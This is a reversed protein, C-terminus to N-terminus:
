RTGKEKRFPATVRDEAKTKLSALRQQAENDAEDITTVLRTLHATDLAVPEAANISQQLGTLM